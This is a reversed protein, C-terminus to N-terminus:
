SFRWDGVMSVVYTVLASVTEVVIADGDAPSNNEVQTGIVPGASPRGRITGAGVVFRQGNVGGSVFRYRLGASFVAPGTFVARSPPSGSYITYGNHATTLTIGGNSSLQQTYPMLRGVDADAQDIYLVRDSSDLDGMAKTKVEREVTSSGDYVFLRLGTSGSAYTPAYIRAATELASPTLSAPRTAQFEHYGSYRGTTSYDAAPIYRQQYLAFRGTTGTGPHSIGYHAAAKTVTGGSTWAGWGSFSIAASALNQLTLTSASPVTRVVYGNNSYGQGSTNLQTTGNVDAIVVRDNVVLGHVTSTSITSTAINIASIAKPTGAGAAINFHDIGAIRSYMRIVPAADTPNPPSTIQGSGDFNLRDGVLDIADDEERMVVGGRVYVKPTGEAEQPYQHTPSSPDNTTGYNRAFLLPMWGGYDGKYPPAAGTAEDLVAFSGRLIAFNENNYWEYTGGPAPLLIDSEFINSSLDAGNAEYFVGATASNLLLVANASSSYLCIARHGAPAAAPTLPTPVGDLMFKFDKAGLGSVNITSAGPAEHNLKAVFLLNNAYASPASSLAVAYAGASGTTEIEGGLDLLLKATDALGARYANNVAAPLWGEAISVGGVSLNDAATISYDRPGM